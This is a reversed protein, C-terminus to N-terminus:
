EFRSRELRLAASMIRKREAENGKPASLFFVDEDTFLEGYRDLVCRVIASLESSDTQRITLLAQELELHEM